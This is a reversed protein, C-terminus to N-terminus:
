KQIYRSHFRNRVHINQVVIRLSFVFSFKSTESESRIFNSQHIIIFFHEDHVSPSTEDSPDVRSLCHVNNLIGLLHLYTTYTLPQKSTQSSNEVDSTTPLVQFNEESIDTDSADSNHHSKSDISGTSKQRVYVSSTRKINAGRESQQRRYSPPANGNAHGNPMRDTSNLNNGSKATELSMQHM